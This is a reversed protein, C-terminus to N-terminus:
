GGCGGVELFVALLVGDEGAEVGIEVEQGDVAAAPIRAKVDPGAVRSALDGDLDGLAIVQEHLGPLLEFV